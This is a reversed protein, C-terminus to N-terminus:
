VRMFAECAVLWLGTSAKKWTMSGINPVVRGNLSLYKDRLQRRHQGIQAVATGAVVASKPFNIDDNIIYPEALKFHNLLRSFLQWAIRVAAPRFRQCSM